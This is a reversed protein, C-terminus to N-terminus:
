ARVSRLLEPNAKARLEDALVGRKVKMSATRPFEDDWLLVRSIRKFDPLKLNRRALDESWASEDDKVEKPRVIAVLEEGVLAADSRPWLYDQAYVVLEECDLGEFASEIDEPYINKGGSTVIMNKSRGVLHLHGSPDLYGRDGTRLWGDQLVEATQAEDKYYGAFVTRGRAWIEGVGMSDAGRVELEVGEVPAGVSDARFPRLDNVTLVTCAETLGYGIVVPLGLEYFRQARAEDVFAGGCFLYRLDPGLKELVPKMVRRSVDHNPKRMTLAANIQQLGDLVYREVNTREDLQEDLRREFAELILPVVSMHTIGENQLVHRILEPRLSRQHLVTAGCAFPGVFGCMFDIAHNTPLVSFYREGVEMPFLAMLSDYQALYNDHTLMCGKPDGGTGSSYVLTAQDSRSRSVFSPAETPTLEEWRHTRAPPTEGKPLETVWTELDLNGAKVGDMLRWEGYETILVKPTAHRLLTEQEDAELKYDIPVLVAGRFFVAYASLLWASQNSMVIAVRDGAGVGMDELARALQAGRRMVDLYTYQAAVRKRSMEILATESKYQILSDRLLEGLSTYHDSPIM